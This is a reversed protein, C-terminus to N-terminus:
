NSRLKYKVKQESPYVMIDKSGLWLSVKKLDRVLRWLQDYVLSAAQDTGWMCRSLTVHREFVEAGVTKAVICASIGEEHGSYGITHEPYMEKLKKIVALDLENDQAPYSSNCWLLVLDKKLKKFVDVAQEIESPTSMGLSMVVPKKTKKIAELLEFDTIKCSPIKIFPITYQLVFELSPIDWVSATWKIGVKKCYKDIEDYEEKGFELMKKYELYTMNGKPTEKEKNKM